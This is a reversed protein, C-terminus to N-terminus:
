LGGYDETEEDYEAEDDRNKLKLGGPDTDSEEEGRQRVEHPALQGLDRTELGAAAPYVLSDVDPKLPSAHCLLAVGFFTLTFAKFM